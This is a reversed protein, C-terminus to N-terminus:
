LRHKLLKVVLRVLAERNPYYYRADDHHSGVTTFTSKVFDVFLDGDFWWDKIGTNENDKFDHGWDKACRALELYDANEIADLVRKVNNM